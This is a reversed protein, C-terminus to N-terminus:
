NKSHVVLAALKPGQALLFCGLAFYPAIYQPKCMALGGLSSRSRLVPNAGLHRLGM